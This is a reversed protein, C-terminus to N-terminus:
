RNCVGVSRTQLRCPISTEGTSSLLSPSDVRPTPSGASLLVEILLSFEGKKCRNAAVMLCPHVVSTTQYNKFGRSIRTTRSLNSYTSTTANGVTWLDQGLSIVWRWHPWLGLSAATRPRLSFSFFFNAGEPAVFDTSGPQSAQDFRLFQHTQM